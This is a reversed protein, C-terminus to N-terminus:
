DPGQASRLETDRNPSPPTNRGTGWAGALGAERRGGVETM